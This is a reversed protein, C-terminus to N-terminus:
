KYIKYEHERENMRVHTKVIVPRVKTETLRKLLVTGLLEAPTGFGDKSRPPLEKRQLLLSLASETVTQATVWNGPDGEFSMYANACAMQGPQGELPAKVEAYVAAHGNECMKDSAGSGPPAVFNLIFDGIIPLKIMLGGMMIAGLVFLSPITSFHGFAITRDIGLPLFREKYTFKPGYNLAIASAHVVKANAVAMFFPISVGQKLITHPFPLLNMWESWAMRNRTEEYDPNFRVREPNTLVLPDFLLLPVKRLKKENTLLCHKIDVTMHKMTALTGGGAMGFCEHWTRASEIAMSKKNNNDKENKNSMVKLIVSSGSESSGSSQRLAQVAAFIAMDSPVSDFGCLSIIRAGSKAAASGYKVRMQGAWDVEGTIDVYDCGTEACAGVVGSSYLGFPGACNLVVFSREAMKKLATYDTSNAVLVDLKVANKGKEKMIPAFKELVATLKSENRGALTVEIPRSLSPGVAALYDLVHRAVFSTAGYITIGTRINSENRERSVPM